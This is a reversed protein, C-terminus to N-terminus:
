RSQGHCAKYKRGSLCPCPDNRGLRAKQAPSPIFFRRFESAPLRAQLARMMAQFYPETHEYVAYWGDCLWNLKGGPADLLRNKPCGGGCLKLYACSQCKLPLKDKKGAGFRQQLPSEAMDALSDDLINGLYNEPFVFHDCSFVSGDHEIAMANGCTVAHTCLSSPYGAHLGLLMDFHQVFVRGIDAAAWTDFVENLFRGWQQASVTRKGIGPEVIPIFQMFQSGASKLFNYVRRPHEANHNQVVTLTNFEAGAAKLNELGAMVQSFTGRGQRDKRYRNHLEEPGDISIGTLFKHESLWQAWERNIRIGNTQLANSIQMGPRAYRQQFQLAKEFFSRPLLSPEGGQWSFMLERTGPPQSEIYSRVYKELVNDPMTFDARNKKGPFMAEKSLYFCYECRINCLPGTPKAMLHFSRRATKSNM